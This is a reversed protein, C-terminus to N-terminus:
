NFSAVRSKIADDREICADPRRLNITVIALALRDNCAVDRATVSRRFDDVREVRLQRRNTYFVAIIRTEAPPRAFHAAGDDFAALNIRLALRKLLGDFDFHAVGQLRDLRGPLADIRCRRRAFRRLFLEGALLATKL